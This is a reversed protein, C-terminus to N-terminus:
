AVAKYGSLKAAMGKPFVLLWKTRKDEDDMFVDLESTNFAYAAADFGLGVNAVVVVLDFDEMLKHCIVRAMSTKWHPKAADRMALQTCPYKDLLQKAKGTPLETELYYGM